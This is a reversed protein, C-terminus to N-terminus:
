RVERNSRITCQICLWFSNTGGTNTELRKLDIKIRHLLCFLKFSALALMNTSYRCNSSNPSIDKQFIKKKQFILYGEPIDTNVWKEICQMALHLIFRVYRSTSTSEWFNISLWLNRQAQLRLGPWHDNVLNLRAVWTHVSELHVFTTGVIPFWYCHLSTPVSRRAIVLNLRAVSTHVHVLQRSLWRSSLQCCCLSTPVRKSQLCQVCRVTCM